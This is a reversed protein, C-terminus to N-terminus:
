DNVEEGETKVRSRKKKLSVKAEGSVIAFYKDLNGIRARYQGEDQTILNSQKLKQLTPRLTGGVISLIEELDKPKTSQEFEDDVVYRWGFNATLFVLIKAEPGLQSWEPRFFIKRNKIDFRVYDSILAEIKEESAADADEVLDKLAM